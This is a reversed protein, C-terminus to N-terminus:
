FIGLEKGIFDFVEDDTSSELKEAVVASDMRERAEKWKSMVTELRATIRESEADAATMSSLMLQLKDLEALVSPAATEDPTLVAAVRVARPLAAAPEAPQANAPQAEAAQATASQATASQAKAAQATASRARVAQAKASQATASQAQARTKAPRTAM